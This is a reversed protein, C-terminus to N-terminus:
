GRALTLCFGFSAFLSGREVCWIGRERKLCREEKTKWDGVRGTTVIEVMCMVRGLRRSVAGLDINIVFLGCCLRSACSLSPRISMAFLFFCFFLASIFSMAHTDTLRSGFLSPPLLWNFRRSSNHYCLLCTIHLSFSLSFLSPPPLHIHHSPHSFPYDSRIYLVSKYPQSLPSSANDNPTFPSPAHPSPHISHLLRPASIWCILLQWLLLLPLLPSLSSM